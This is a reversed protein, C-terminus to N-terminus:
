ALTTQALDYFARMRRADHFLEFGAIEDGVFLWKHRMHGDVDLRTARHRYRFAVTSVLMIGETRLLHLRFAEVAFQRAFEELRQGFADRGVGSGVFSPADQSAHVAFAMDPMCYSLTADLAGREWCAYVDGLILSAHRALM